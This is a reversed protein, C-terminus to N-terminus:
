LRGQGPQGPEHDVWQLVEPGGTTEMIIAKSM